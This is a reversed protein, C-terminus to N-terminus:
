TRWKLAHREGQKPHKRDLSHLTLTAGNAALQTDVWGRPQTPQFLWATTPINVLYLGDHQTVSWRHSHGFFYAKVQKRPVIVELLKTSDQLGSGAENEQLNHHAVLLAPKDAHADLADALWKLQTEGLRGPTFNTRQLSDLLFWNAYPTALISVHKDAATPKGQPRCEPVAAYFNERHDHNGLAFHVNVGQKRLPQVMETLVAYDGPKGEIYVCDGAIIAGAPRSKMALIQNAAQAFNDAPKVDHHARDRHEWIHSDALLAWHNPNGSPSTAWAHQPLLLGVGTAVTGALFERRSIAPLHVPM